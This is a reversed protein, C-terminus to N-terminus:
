ARVAVSGFWGAVTSLALREWDDLSGDTLLRLLLEVPNRNVDDVDLRGGRAAQVQQATTRAQGALVCRCLRFQSSFGSGVLRRWHLRPFWYM